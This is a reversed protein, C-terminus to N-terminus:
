LHTLSSASYLYVNVKGKGKSYNKCCRIFRCKLGYTVNCLYSSALQGYIITRGAAHVNYHFVMLITYFNCSSKQLSVKLM